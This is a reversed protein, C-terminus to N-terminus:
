NSLTMTDAPLFFKSYSGPSTPIAFSDAPFHIALELPNATENVVRTWFVACGFKKGTPDTYALGGKPLSNQIIIGQSITQSDAKWIQGIAHIYLSLFFVQFTIFRM